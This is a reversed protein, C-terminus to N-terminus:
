TGLGAVTGAKSAWFARKRNIKVQGGKKREEEEEGNSGGGEESSGVVIVEGESGSDTTFITEADIVEETRRRKRRAIGYRGEEEDADVDIVERSLATTSLNRKRAHGKDDTEQSREAREGNPQVISEGGEKSHVIGSLQPDDQMVTTKPPVGVLRHLVKKDYVEQV